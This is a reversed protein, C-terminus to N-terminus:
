EHFFEGSISDHWDNGLAQEQIALVGFLDIDVWRLRLIEGLRYGTFLLLRIAAVAHPSLKALRKDEKPAHKAGPKRAIRHRGRRM